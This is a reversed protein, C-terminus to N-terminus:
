WPCEFCCEFVVEGHVSVRAGVGDGHVGEGVGNVGVGVGVGSLCGRPYNSSRVCVGGGKRM